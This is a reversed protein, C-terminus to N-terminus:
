KIPNLEPIEKDYGEYHVWTARLKKIIEDRRYRAPMKGRKFRRVDQVSVGLHEAVMQDTMKGECCRFLNNIRIKFEEPTM